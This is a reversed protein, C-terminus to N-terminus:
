QGYGSIVFEVRRNKVNEKVSKGEYILRNEGYFDIQLREPSINKSVLYELVAKARKESLKHNYENVGYMDTHAVIKINMEPFKILTLLLSELKQRSYDTLITEDFPFHAKVPLTDGVSPRIVTPKLTLSYFEVDDIALDNGSSTLVDNVLCLSINGSMSGSQWKWKYQVWNQNRLSAADGVKSGNVSFIIESANDHSRHAIAVWVAFEYETQPTVSVESCWIKEDENGAPDGVFYRDNGTTHGSLQIFTPNLTSADNTVSYHGPLVESSDYTLDSSFHSNGEEFNGNRILNEGKPPDAGEATLFHTAIFILLFFKNM